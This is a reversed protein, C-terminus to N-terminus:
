GRNQNEKEMMRAVMGAPLMAQIPVLEAEEAENGIGQMQRLHVRDHSEDRVKRKAAEVLKETVLPGKGKEAAWARTKQEVVQQEALMRQIEEETAGEPM